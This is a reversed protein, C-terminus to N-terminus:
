SPSIRGNRTIRVKQNELIVVGAEILGTKLAKYELVRSEHNGSVYYVPALKMAQQVFELAIGINTHRSDILDGTIVIMDPSSRSLLRVLKENDEGFEDNHLDSIQAIRFDDFDQRIEDSVITYENIELATNGWVTWLGLSMLFGISVMLIVHKKSLKKM